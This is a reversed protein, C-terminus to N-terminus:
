FQSKPVAGSAAGVLEEAEKLLPSYKSTNGGRVEGPRYRGPGFKNREVPLELCVNKAADRFVNMPDEGRKVKEINDELLKRFMIIGRDSLGLHEASRDTVQGQTYWMVSDQGSNNDVLSWPPEGGDTLTPIPVEYFPVTTHAQVEMDDDRIKYHASYWFHMTHHDDIPTRMQYVPHAANGSKLMMPFVLPHGTAWHEHEETDSDLLRRKIIGYEFLTFGIKTHHQVKKRLEPQDLREYVYNSFHQHLWEVHVPDLANEAIQVWNCPIVGFGIERPADLRTFLDWRPILPAPDPGLYAWIMDAMEEVRYAKIRVRDKFTSTPDETEEYPQQLCRGSGSFLWGHYACRLGENEPVGYVMGASRHPCRDGLLGLKGQRDRYLVLSEGLITLPKTGADPLQSSAAIPHWYRRLFDGGPTGPGVQTFEANEQATLV